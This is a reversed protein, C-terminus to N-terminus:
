RCCFVDCLVWSSSDNFNSVRIYGFGKTASVSGQSLSFSIFIFSTQNFFMLFIDHKTSYARKDADLFYKLFIFERKMRWWEYICIEFSATSFSYLNHLIIFSCSFIKHAFICWLQTAKFLLSLSQLTFLYSLDILWCCSNESDVEFM